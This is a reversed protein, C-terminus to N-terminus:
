WSCRDTQLAGHGIATNRAGTTLAVGANGGILVNEDGTSVDLGANM